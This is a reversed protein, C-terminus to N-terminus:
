APACHVTSIASAVTIITGAAVGLGVGVGVGFFTLFTNFPATLGEDPGTNSIFFQDEGALDPGINEGGEAEATAVAAPNAVSQNAILHSILRPTSDIVPDASNYTTGAQADDDENEHQLLDAEIFVGEADLHLSVLRYCSDLHWKAIHM